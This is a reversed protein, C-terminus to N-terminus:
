GPVTSLGDFTYCDWGTDLGTCPRIEKTLPFLDGSTSDYRVVVGDRVSRHLAPHRCASFPGDWRSAALSTYLNM